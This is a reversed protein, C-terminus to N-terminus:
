DADFVRLLARAFHPARIRLGTEQIHSLSRWDFNQSGIYAERDDVVFYKAHLVGGTLQRWDFLSIAIGLRGRFRALTEPYTGAMAQECLVRVRVGRRGAALVAAIVPDLAEGKKGSLYFEAIALSHRAGQIMELWVAAADRTGARSIATAQPVSSVVEFAPAACFVPFAALCLSFLATVRM